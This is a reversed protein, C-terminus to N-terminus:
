YPYRYRPTVPGETKGGFATTAAKNEPHKPVRKKGAVRAFKIKRMKKLIKV